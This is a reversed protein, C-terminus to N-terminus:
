EAPATCAYSCDHWPLLPPIPDLQRGRLVACSCRRLRCKRQPDGVSDVSVAVGTNVIGQHLFQQFLSLVESMVATVSLGHMVNFGSRSNSSLFPHQRTSLRLWSSKGPLKTICRGACCFSTFCRRPVWLQPTNSTKEAKLSIRQLSTAMQCVLHHADHSDIGLQLQDHAWRCDRHVSSRSCGM